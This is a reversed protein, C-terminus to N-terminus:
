QACCINKMWRAACKTSCWAPAKRIAIPIGPAVRSWGRVFWLLTLATGLYAVWSFDWPMWFPLDAPFYRCAVDLMAGVAIIAATAPGDLRARSFAM